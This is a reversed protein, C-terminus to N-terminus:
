ATAGERPATPMNDRADLACIPRQGGGTARYQSAAGFM